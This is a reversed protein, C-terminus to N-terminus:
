ESIHATVVKNNQLYRVRLIPLYNNDPLYFYIRTEKEWLFIALIINFIKENFLYASYIKLTKM